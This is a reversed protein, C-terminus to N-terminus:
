IVTKGNFMQRVMNVFGYGLLKAAFIKARNKLRTSKPYWSGSLYHICYTNITQNIKRSGQDIPCFYEQPFIEMGCINQRSNDLRLGHVSLIDALIHSNAKTKVVGNEAVEFEMSLYRNYFEKFIRNESSMALVGTQMVRDTEFGGFAEYQLLDDLSRVIEVDTDLYIGGYKKLAHLRVFDAVFAYKRARYAESTFSTSNVDFTSEDWRMIKYDPLFRHWSEMCRQELKPLSSGGFWCYHIIKPIM